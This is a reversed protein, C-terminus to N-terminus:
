SFSPRQNNISINADAKAIEEKFKAILNKSEKLCDKLDRIELKVEERADAIAKLTRQKKLDFDTEHKVHHRNENQATLANHMVLTPEQFIIEDYFENVFLKKGSIILPDMNFLKLPHYITVHREALDVFFIKIIAEFEGWGTEKVEYPPETIIRTPNAYSDHLKFVIKRVYKSMDENLYPKVYLTWSHTHNDEERKKSFYRATNGYIISKVINQNLPQAVEDSKAKGLLVEIMKLAFEFSTGPGRSTIIHGDHVVRDESYKFSSGELLEDRVSPHSTVTKNQGIKHSKLALPGACIAAIFGNRSEQSKLLEGVELSAALNRAGKLGGPLILIDYTPSSSLAVKFSKDPKIVVNRSCIIESDGQLGAITVDIGARRLLDAPVITEIEEAGESLVILAKKTM